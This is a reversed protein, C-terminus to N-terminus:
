DYTALLKLHDGGPRLFNRHANDAHLLKEKPRYYIAAGVSLMAAITITQHVCKLKEASLIAKSLQPDLPFEAMRRGLMTLQGEDNLAGLAYLLELAKIMIEAPPPDMFDFHLLDNIGMAKLTLTTTGLNTRQIEPVSTPLMENKFASETYLRFCKGPGTRGARGARQRASAQSIPAVVLSDMGVKPNFVKQKAFGPDVVYYIGDITLSAEAINTAVIVKRSGPPAPEFIRTQMESPLSSYVPLIHLDPVSPGLGKMREFLVQCATDIEEQGTLFLLIDGEPETLHIQMVTILAADMYDQSALRPSAPSLIRDALRRRPPLSKPSSERERAPPHANADSVKIYKVTGM